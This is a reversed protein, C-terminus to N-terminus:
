LLCRRLSVPLCVLASCRCSGRLGPEGRAGRCSSGPAQDLACRPGGWFCRGARAPTVASHLPSSGMARLGLGRRSRRGFCREEEPPQFPSVFGAHKKCILFLLTYNILLNIIETGGPNYQKELNQPGTYNVLKVTASSGQSHSDTEGVYGVRLRSKTCLRLPQRCRRLSCPAWVEEGAGAAAGSRSEPFIGRRKSLPRRRGVWCSGIRRSLFSYGCPSEEVSRQWQSGTCACFILQQAVRGKCAAPSSPEWRLLNETM